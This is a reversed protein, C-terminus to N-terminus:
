FDPRFAAMSASRLCRRVPDGAHHWRHDTVPRDTEEPDVGDDGEVGARAEVAEPDEEGQEREPGQQRGRQGVEGQFREGASRLTLVADGGGEVEIHVAGETLGGSPGAWFYLGDSPAGPPKAAPSSGNVPGQNGQYWWGFRVTTAAAADGHVALPGLAACTAFVIAPLCRILRRRM